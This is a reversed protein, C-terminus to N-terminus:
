QNPNVGSSEKWYSALWAVSQELTTKQLGRRAYKPTAGRVTLDPTPLFYIRASQQRAPNPPAPPAIPSQQQPTTTSDHDDDDDDDNERAQNYECRATQTSHSTSPSSELNFENRLHQERSVLRSQMRRSDRCAETRTTPGQPIPSQPTGLLGRFPSAQQEAM